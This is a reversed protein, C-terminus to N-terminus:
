FVQLQTAPPFFSLHLVLFEALQLPVPVMLDCTSDNPFHNGADSPSATTACISLLLLPSGPLVPLAHGCHTGGPLASLSSTRGAGQPIGKETESLATSSTYRATLTMVAEGPQHFFTVQQCVPASAPSHSPPECLLHVM